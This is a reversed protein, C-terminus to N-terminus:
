ARAVDRYQFAASGFWGVGAMFSLVKRSGVGASAFHQRQIVEESCQDLRTESDIAADHGALLGERTLKVEVDPQVGMCTNQFSSVRSNLWGPM